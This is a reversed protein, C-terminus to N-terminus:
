GQCRSGGCAAGHPRSRGWASGGGRRVGRPRPPAYFTALRRAARGHRQVGHGDQRDRLERAHRDRRRQALGSTTARAATSTTSRTTTPSRTCSTTARAATSSTPAAARALHPRQRQRRQAHRRRAPRPPRRRGRRRDAHRQRAGGWVRDNGGEGNLPTTAATATSATTATAPTSPTTAPARSSATAGPPAPSSTTRRRARSRVIEHALAAGALALVALAAVSGIVLRGESCPGEEQNVSRSAQDEGRQTLAANAARLVRTFRREADRSPRATPPRGTGGASRGAGAPPRHLRTLRGPHEDVEVSGGMGEVLEKVIALGLGTGVPRERATARTSTSASSPASSSRPASARARTRSRSRRGAGAVVRVSAAPRRSGCRTRSSTRSSRCRATPTASDGARGGPRGGRARRRLRAGAGRLPAGGRPRRRALDIPERRVSFEAKRM